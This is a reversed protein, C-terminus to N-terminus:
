DPKDVQKATLHDITIEYATISQQAFPLAAKTQEWAPAPVFKEVLKELVLLRLEPVIKITGFAIASRSKFGELPQIVTFSVKPNAAISEQMLGPVTSSHLYIKGDVTVYNMPVGYPYGEAGMLSLVGYTGGELVSAAVGASLARDKRRMERFM